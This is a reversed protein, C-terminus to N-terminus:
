DQSFIYVLRGKIKGCGTIVGDGLIKNEALGFDSSRHTVFMDFEEFSNADVLLEIRERATLKGKKHQADIRKQGGGLKAEARMQELKNLKEELSM